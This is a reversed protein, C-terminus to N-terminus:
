VMDRLVKGLCDYSDALNIQQGSGPSTLNSYRSLNSYYNMLVSEYTVASAGCEGPPCWRWGGIAYYTFSDIVIGSLNYSSYSEDRICRIHKCTDFLLGNSSRNKELMAEQEAKPDTSEWAGGNHTNPFLFRGTTTKFAPLVEFMIGDKFNCVVVQGDGSVDTRPYTGLIANKVAQLLRSQGNGSIGNYKDYYESPLQVLIDIDSTSVATGRGYSGVYISHATDSTEGWFSANVAKTITHYRLSVLQRQEQSIIEGHKQVRNGM